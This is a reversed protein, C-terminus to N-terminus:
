SNSPEPSPSAGLSKALVVVRAALEGMGLPMTEEIIASLLGLQDHLSLRAAVAEAEPNGPQGTGAAIVAAVFEPGMAQISTISLGGDLLGEMGQFRGILRVLDFLDVGTVEVDAGRVPVTRHSPAIDLLTAM